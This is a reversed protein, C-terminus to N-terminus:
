SLDDDSPEMRELVKLLRDRHRKVSTRRESPSLNAVGLAEALRDTSREGALILSLTNQDRADPLVECVRSWMESAEATVELAENPPRSRLEVVEQFGAERELRLSSTRLRDIARRKAITGLYTSLRGRSPDYAAPRDLYEFLADVSADYGLDADRCGLSARLNTSLPQIFADFVDVPAVPDGSLVREHLQMEDVRSPFGM